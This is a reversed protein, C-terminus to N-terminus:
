DGEMLGRLVRLHRPHRLKGFALDRIQRVRERTINLTNGIEQLTYTRGYGLGYYLRLVRAEREGLTDLMAHIKERDLGKLVREDAPQQSKDALAQLLNRSDDRSFERDFSQSPRTARVTEMVERESRGLAWAVESYHPEDGRGQGLRRATESIEKLLNRKNMPLRVASVQEALAQLIAQRIWWVAYSIFKVGKDADFREAATILGVNGASILDALGLGRRQFRKAVSIVFPLNARVLSDRAQIDGESIRQALDAEQGRSLLDGRHFGVQDFYIKLSHGDECNGSASGDATTSVAMPESAFYEITTANM